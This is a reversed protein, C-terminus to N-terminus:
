MEGKQISGSQRASRREERNSARYQTPTVGVERRFYRSLSSVDGFGARECIETMRLDTNELLMRAATVRCRLQYNKISYGTVAKFRHALYYPNLHFQRGLEGLSLDECIRQEITRRVADIVAASGEGEDPFCAPASRMLLLLASRVLDDAARPFAAEGRSWEECAFSLLQELRTATDSQLPLVHCFHEPRNTFVSLLRREEGSVPADPDFNVTYRQYEEGPLHWSHRELRGIFVVCPAAAAYRVGDVYLIPEGRLILVLQHV